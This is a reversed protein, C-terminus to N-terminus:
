HRIGLPGAPLYITETSSSGQRQIEVPVSTGPPVQYVQTRLDGMHFVRQNNYRIIKDGSRLGAEYAPASELLGGIQFETRGGTADLYQDYEERNLEQEFVRHPNSYTQLKEQLEKARKSRKDQLHQYEYSFQMQEYPIREQRDVIYAAREYSLGADTFQRIQNERIREFRNGSAHDRARRRRNAQEQEVPSELSAQRVDGYTSEPDLHESLDNVLELLQGQIKLTQELSEELQQVRATLDGPSLPADTNNSFLSQQLASSTPNESGAWHAVAAGVLLLSVAVPIARRPLKM